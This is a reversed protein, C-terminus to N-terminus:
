YTPPFFFLLLIFDRLEDRINVTTTVPAKKSNLARPMVALSANLGNLVAARDHPFM